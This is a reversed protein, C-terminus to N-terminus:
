GLAKQYAQAPNEWAIRRITELVENIDGGEERRGTLLDALHDFQAALSDPYKNSSTM